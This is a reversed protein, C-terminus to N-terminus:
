ARRRRPSESVLKRYASMGGSVSAVRTLGQRALLSAALSARYGGECITVVPGAPNSPASAGVQNLLVHVADPLHGAEFEQRSRVDLVAPADAGALRKELEAVDIREGASVPLGAKRWADFGGGVYGAVNDIGIRALQLGAAAAQQEGEAVLVVRAAGPVVWGAWYGIKPGFELHIAGTPHAAAFADPSRLDLVLAGAAVLEGAVAAELRPPATAANGPGLVPPGDANLRKMRPFYPPTDPLDALVAAVFLDKTRHQLFANFRREQGITSHDAQGIGTGCLSGAGHGPHVEVDDELRLLVDHLSDYLAGALQRAHEDGLLDPRGVASVFLTDGTLVRRPADADEILVSIHEPTHGPTHLFTLAIDDGLTLREGHTVEHHPFRLGAGPGAVPRAGVAALECGGSVFDAHVHTEIAYAIEVGSERAAEVYVEIDRRPDVVVAKGTVLSAILYSSQALGDDVFRRFM